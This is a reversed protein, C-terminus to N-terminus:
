RRLSSVPESTTERGCYRNLAQLRAVQWVIAEGILVVLVLFLLHHYARPLAQWGGRWVYHGILLAYALVIMVTTWRVLARRGWLGSGVVLAPYAVVLPTLEDEALWLILTLLVVDLGCWCAPLYREVEPFRGLWRLGVLVLAWIGLVGLITTHVSRHLVGGPIDPKLVPRLWYNGQIILAVVVLALLHLSFAPERRFWRRLRQWYSYPTVSPAEGRLISELDDALESASAYRQQPDKELCKLCILELDRPIEPRLRRPAPPESELVQLIVDLPNEGVFPPRGTLVAYLIAGLSYVDTRPSIAALQGQAQEPAMYSPTGLIAGSVTHPEAIQLWKALGFDSVYPQGQEDLLVNSPKLDRHIIGYQHLHAVARAVTAVLRVAQEIPLPGRLVLTQLSQGPVYDMAFYHHGEAEGYDFVSVINPHRIQAATRAERQFRRIHEADALYGSLLMKVAVIRNLQVHRARYVVGMGGRGIEELLEYHGFRRPAEGQTKQTPQVYLVTPADPQQQQLAELLEAEDKAHEALRDRSQQLEDLCDFLPALEGHEQRLRQRVEADGEWYAELLAAEQEFEPSDPLESFSFPVSSESM